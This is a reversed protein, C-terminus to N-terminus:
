AKAGSFKALRASALVAMRWAYNDARVNSRRVNNQYWEFANSYTESEFRTLTALKKFQKKM